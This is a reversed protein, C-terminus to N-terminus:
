SPYASNLKFFLPTPEIKPITFFLPKLCGRSCCPKNFMKEICVNGGVSVWECEWVRKICQCSYLSTVTHCAATVLPLPLLFSTYLRSPASNNQAVKFPLLHLWSFFGIWSAALSVSQWDVWIMLHDLRSSWPWCTSHYDHMLSVWWGRLLTRINACIGSPGLLGVTFCSAM